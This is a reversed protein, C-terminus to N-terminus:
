SLHKKAYFIRELTTYFAGIGVILLGLKYFGLFTFIVITGFRETREFVGVPIDVGLSHSRAKTYSVMFSFMLALLGLFVGEVDQAKSFFLIIAGIPLADSLRDITSDLFAGFSSSKNAFRALAGDLADFLGGLLLLIAGIRNYNEYVFFSGISIVVMGTLSIVNPNINKDKLFVLIPYIAKEFSPKLSKVFSSM